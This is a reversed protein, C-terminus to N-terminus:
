ELTYLPTSQFRPLATVEVRHGTEGAKERLANLVTQVALEPENNDRSLHCLWVHKLRPTAINAVLCAADLNSLHGHDGLIRAKLYAPYSGNRLMDLDHNAELVLYNAQMAYRTLVDTVHGVDTIVCLSVEDRRIFYGVNDTGDHPVEFAEVALPGIQVPENKQVMRFNGQTKYVKHNIISQRVKETVYVPLSLKKCLTGLGKIHDAHDHTVLVGLLQRSDIGAEGLLKVITRFAVGADILIGGDPAGVYYCNGSSGSALSMFQLM